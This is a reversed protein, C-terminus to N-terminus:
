AARQSLWKPLLMDDIQEYLQGLISGISRLPSMGRGLKRIASCVKNASGIAQWIASDM